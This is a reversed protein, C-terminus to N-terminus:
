TQVPAIPVKTPALTCEKHDGAKICLYGDNCEKTLKCRAGPGKGSEKQAKSGQKASAADQSAPPDVNPELAYASQVQVRPLNTAVGLLTGIM